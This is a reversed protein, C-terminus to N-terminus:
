RQVIADTERLTTGPPTEIQFAARGEDAPSMFEFSMRAAISLGISGILFLAGLVFVKWRNGLSWRLAKLYGSMWFPDRDEHKTHKLM